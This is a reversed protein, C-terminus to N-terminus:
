QRRRKFVKTESQHTQISNFILDISRPILGPDQDKGIVSYTKGSNTVGYAFVLANNGSLVDRM